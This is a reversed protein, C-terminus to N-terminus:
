GSGASKAPSPDATSQLIDVTSQLSHAIGEGGGNGAWAPIIGAHGKEFDGEFQMGWWAEFLKLAEAGEGVGVAEAAESDVFLLLVQGEFVVGGPQAFGLDGVDEASGADGDHLPYGRHFGRIWEWHFFGGQGPLGARARPMTELEDAIKM